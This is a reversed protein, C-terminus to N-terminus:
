RGRLADEVKGHSKLVHLVLAWSEGQATTIVFDCVLKEQRENCGRNRYGVPNSAKDAQLTAVSSSRNEWSSEAQSGSRTVSNMGAKNHQILSDMYSKAISEQKTDAYTAFPLWLNAAIGLVVIAKTKM